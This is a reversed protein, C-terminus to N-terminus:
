VQKYEIVRRLVRWEPGALTCFAQADNPSWFWKADKANKTRYKESVICGGNGIASFDDTAFYQVEGEKNLRVPVYQTYHVDKTRKFLKSKAKTKTAM